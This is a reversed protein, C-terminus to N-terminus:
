CFRSLVKTWFISLALEQTCFSHLFLTGTHEATMRPPHKFHCKRDFEKTNICLPVTQKAVSPLVQAYHVCIQSRYINRDMILFGLLNISGTGSASCIPSVLKAKAINKRAGLGQEPPLGPLTETDLQLLSWDHLNHTLDGFGQRLDLNKSQLGQTLWDRDGLCHQM